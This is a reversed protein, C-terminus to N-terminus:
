GAKAKADATPVAKKETEQKYWILDLHCLARRFSDAEVPTMSSHRPMAVRQLLPLIYEPDSEERTLHTVAQLMTVLDAAAEQDTLVKSVLQGHMKKRRNAPATNTKLSGYAFTENKKLREILRKKLRERCDVKELEAIVDSTGLRTQGIFFYIPYFISPEFCVQSVYDLPVLVSERRLFANIIDPGHLPQRVLKTPQVLQSNIPTVAGILKLTPDGGTDVFTGDHIFQIKPLLDESILFSGAGGSVEGTVSNLVGVNEIGIRAMRQLTQMWLEREKQREMDLLLRLEPYRIKESRGRYRYYIAGEQIEKTTKLCVVPKNTAEHVYIMGVKKGQIEHVCQDWHIEPALTSNLTGSLKAPDLSDFTDTKLGILTRPKDKVGFVLYGGATNAFAAMTKAYDDTSGFNFSEKFELRGSERSALRQDHDPDFKFIEDLTGPDFPSRKM